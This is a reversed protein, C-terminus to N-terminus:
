NKKTICEDIGNNIKQSNEQNNKELIRLCNILKNYDNKNEQYDELLDDYQKYIDSKENICNKYMTTYFELKNM